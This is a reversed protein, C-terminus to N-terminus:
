RATQGSPNVTIRPTAPPEPLGASAQGPAALFRRITSDRLEAAEQETLPPEV